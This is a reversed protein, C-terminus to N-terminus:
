EHMKSGSAYVSSCCCATTYKNNLIRHTNWVLKYPRESYIMYCKHYQAM